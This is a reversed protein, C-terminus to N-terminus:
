RHDDVVAHFHAAGAVMFSGAPTTEAILVNDVRGSEPLYFGTAFAATVKGYGPQRFDSCYGFVMSFFVQSKAKNLMAHLFDSSLPLLKVAFGDIRSLIGPKAPLPTAALGKGKLPLPREIIQFELKLLTSAL